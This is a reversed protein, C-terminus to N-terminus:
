QFRLLRRFFLACLVALFEGLILAKKKEHFGMQSLWRSRCLTVHSARLVFRRGGLPKARLKITSFVLNMWGLGVMYSIDVWSLQNKQYIYSM